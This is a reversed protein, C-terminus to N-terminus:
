QNYFDPLLENYKFRLFEYEDPSLEINKINEENKKYIQEDERYEAMIRNGIFIQPNLNNFDNKIDKCVSIAKRVTFYYEEFSFIKLFWIYLFEIGFIYFIMLLHKSIFCTSLTKGPNLTVMFEIINNELTGDDIGLSTIYNGSHQGKNKQIFNEYEDNFDKITHFDVFDIKTRLHILAFKNKIDPLVIKGSTDKITYHKYKEVGSGVNTTTKILASYNYGSISHYDTLLYLYIFEFNAEKSEIKKKLAKIVEFNTTLNNKILRIIKLYYTLYPNFMEVDCYFLLAFILSFLILMGYFLYGFIIILLASISAYCKNKSHTYSWSNDCFISPNDFEQAIEKSVYIAFILGIISFISSLIRGISSFTFLKESFNEQPLMKSDLGKSIPTSYVQSPKSILNKDPLLPAPDYVVKNDLVNSPFEIM